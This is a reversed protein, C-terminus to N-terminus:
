EGEDYFPIGPLLRFEGDSVEGCLHVHGNTILVHRAALALNYRFAQEFTAQTLAVSPAKCEAVLCPTARRDHCVVDFRQRLGCVDVEKEVAILAEPYGRHDALFRVLHQRVWEEPTLLVYRGRSRDFIYLRGNVKKVRYDFSPFDLANM